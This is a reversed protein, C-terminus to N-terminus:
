QKNKKKHNASRIAAGYAENAWQCLMATNELTEEPALSYSMRILKDGKRYSFPELALSEFNPRNIKDTKLYLVDNSILGFMLGDLFLGYGGFMPRATVPGIMALQECIFNAFESHSM